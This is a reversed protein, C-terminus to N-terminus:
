RRELGTILADVQLTIPRHPDYNRITTEASIANKVPDFAQQDFVNWEFIANKKTLNPLVATKESLNLIFVRIHTALGLFSLLEQRNTPAPMKSIAATKKPDPHVGDASCIVEFFKINPEKIRTKEPNLNLGKTVCKEMLTHLNADHEEKTRGIVVIDDAIRTVGPCGEILQDIRHQFVDQAMRLGFPLRLFRYRGFPSNFTTLYSSPENLEVNWYGNKADLISFYKAGNIKPLIEELTTTIHHSKQPGEPRPLDSAGGNAQRRYVLSNFLETPEGESVKRIVGQQEM